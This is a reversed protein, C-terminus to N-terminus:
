RTRARARSLGAVGAACRSGSACPTTRVSRANGASRARHGQGPSRPGARARAAAAVSFVALRGRRVPAPRRGPLIRWHLAPIRRALIAPEVAAAGAPAAVSRHGHWRSAFGTARRRRVPDAVDVMRGWLHAPMPLRTPSRCVALVALGLTLDPVNWGRNKVYNDTFSMITQAALRYGAWVDALGSGSSGSSSWRRLRAAARCRGSASALM